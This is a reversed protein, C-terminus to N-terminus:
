RSARNRWAGIFVDREHNVIPTAAESKVPRAEVGVRDNGPSQRLWREGSSHNLPEHRGNSLARPIKLPKREGLPSSKTSSRLMNTSATNGLEM